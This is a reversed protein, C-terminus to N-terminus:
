VARAQALNPTSSEPPDVMEMLEEDEKMQLYETQKLAFIEYENKNEYQWYERPRLARVLEKYKNIIKRAQRRRFAKANYSNKGRVIVTDTESTKLTGITEKGDETIMKTIATGKFDVVEHMDVVEHLCAQTEALRTPDDKDLELPLDEVYIFKSPIKKAMEVREKITLGEYTSMVEEERIEKALQKDKHTLTKEEEKMQQLTKQVEEVRVRISRLAVPRDLEQVYMKFRDEFTRKAEVLEKMRKYREEKDFKTMLWNQHRLGYTDVHRSRTGVECGGYIQSMTEPNNMARVIRIEEEPPITRLTTMSVHAKISKETGYVTGTQISKVRDYYNDHPTPPNAKPQVLFGEKVKSTSIHLFIHSDDYELIEQDNMHLYEELKNTRTYYATNLRTAQVKSLHDSWSRQYIPRHTLENMAVQENEKRFYDSSGQNKKWFDHLYIQCKEYLPQRNKSFVMGAIAFMVAPSDEQVHGMLAQRIIRPADTLIGPWEPSSPLTMLLNTYNSGFGNGAGPLLQAMAALRSQWHRAARIAETPPNERRAEPVLKDMESQYRDTLGKIDAPHAWKCEPHICCGALYYVCANTYMWMTRELAAVPIKAKFCRCVFDVVESERTRNIKTKGMMYTYGLKGTTKNQYKIM